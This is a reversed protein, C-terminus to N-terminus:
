TARMIWVIDYFISKFHPFCVVCQIIFNMVSTRYLKHYFKQVFMILGCENYCVFMSTNMKMTAMSTLSKVMKKTGAHVTVTLGQLPSMKLSAAM